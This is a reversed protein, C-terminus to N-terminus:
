IMVHNTFSLLRKTTLFIRFILSIRDNEKKIITNVNVVFMEDESEPIKKNNEYFDEIDQLCLASGKYTQRLQKLYNSLQLSNPITIGPIERLNRLM